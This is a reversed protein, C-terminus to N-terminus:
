GDVEEVTISDQIESEYSVPWAFRDTFLMEQAHQPNDAEVRATYFLEETWSVNYIPM